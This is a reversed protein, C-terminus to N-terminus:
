AARRVPVAVAAGDELRVLRDAHAVLEARHAILLVTRQVGLREV